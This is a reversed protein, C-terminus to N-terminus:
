IWHTFWIGHRESVHRSFPMNISNGKEGAFKTLNQVWLIILSAPIIINIHLYVYMFYKRSHEYLVFHHIPFPFPISLYYFHFLHSCIPVATPVRLSSNGHKWLILQYDLTLGESSLLRLYLKKPEWHCLAVHDFNKFLQISIKDSHIFSLSSFSFGDSCPHCCLM